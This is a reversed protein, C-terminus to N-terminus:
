STDVEVPEPAAEPEPEKPRQHFRRYVLFGVAVLLVTAEVVDGVQSPIGLSRGATGAGVNLDGLLLAALVVTPMALAGLTAVVIGTYGFGSSLG